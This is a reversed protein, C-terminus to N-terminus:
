LATCIKALWAAEDAKLQPGIEKVVRAHYANLWNREEADLLDALILRQEIPALTLTEFGHMARNGGRIQAPDTVLVLNEIRIGYGGAIYYGPENSMIMGTELQPASRKSISAPGEHVGLYSGVGHGTGHDYDFGANWLPQRALTDLQIGRTGKPFRAMSVAIMGKLVLTFHKKMEDTPTGVFLTRTIDTTGEFYQGGSDLVILSNDILKSNSQPTVRYHAIAGNPGSGCITEFSTDQLAGTEHRCRYLAEIMDMETLRAKDANEFWFLFRALAAGDRRHAIRAGEIETANKQAKMLTIPDTGEVLRAKSSKVTESIAVVSASSDVLVSQGDALNKLAAKFDAIDHFIAQGKLAERVNDKVKRSDMFIQADNEGIIAFGFTLPTHEIDNGRVNFTWALNDTQTVVLHTAGKEKLEKRIRQLKSAANEGSYKEDHLKTISLPPPPRNSWFTDLPNEDLAVLTVNKPTLVKGIQELGDRTHLWPDYGLRAGQPVHAILWDNVTTDLTCVIEFLQADIEQAAQITYRGDVFAAAQTKLVAVFGWSGTFGTLWEMRM